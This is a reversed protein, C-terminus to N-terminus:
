GEQPMALWWVEIWGGEGLSRLALSGVVEARSGWALLGLWVRAGIACDKCFLDEM